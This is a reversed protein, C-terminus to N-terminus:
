ENIFGMPCWTSIRFRREQLVHIIIFRHTTYVHVEFSHFLFFEHIRKFHTLLLLFFLGTQWRDVNYGYSFYLDFKNKLLYMSIIM